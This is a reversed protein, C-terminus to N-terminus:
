IEEVILVYNGTKDEQYSKPTLQYTGAELYSDIRANTGGASDDDSLNYGNGSLNLVADFDSSYLSVRYEGDRHIRLSLNNNNANNSLRKAIVGGPSVINGGTNSPLDRTTNKLTFLGSAGNYSKARISYTGPDLVALIQSNLGGAGDDDSLQVGRGQLELQSDISESTMTLTVLSRNPVNLTYRRPTEATIGIIEGNLPLTGSNILTVGAPLKESIVKLTYAGSTSTDYSSSTVTYQGPKLYQALLANNEEGSDDDSVDVGNGSLKVLADFDDSDLSIKYLGEETINLSYSNSANSSRLGLVEEGVAINGSNKAKLHETSVQFPGYSNTDSGSVALKYTGNAPVIVALSNDNPGAVVQQQADILLLSGEFNDALAFRMADGEKLNLSFQQYRTGNGLNLPSRTTLEGNLTAHNSPATASPTVCGSLLSFALVTLSPLAIGTVTSPLRM